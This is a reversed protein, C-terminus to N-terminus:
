LKKACLEVLKDFYKRRVEDNVFYYTFSDTITYFKIGCRTRHYEDKNDCMSIHVIHDTNLITKYFYVLM